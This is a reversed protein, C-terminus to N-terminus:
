SELLFRQHNYKLIIRLSCGIVVDVITCRWCAFNLLLLIFGLSLINTQHLSHPFLFRSLSEWGIPELVVNYKVLRILRMKSLLFSMPISIISSPVYGDWFRFLTNCDYVILHIMCFCRGRTKCALILINIWEYCKRQSDCTHNSMTVCCSTQENEKSKYGTSEIWVIPNTAFSRQSRSFGNADEKPTNNSFEPPVWNNSTTKFPFSTHTLANPVLKTGIWAWFNGGTRWISNSLQQLIVFAPVYKIKHDKITAFLMQSSTNTENKDTSYMWSSILAVNPLHFLFNYSFL